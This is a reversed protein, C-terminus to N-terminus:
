RECECLEPMYAPSVMSGINKSATCPYLSDFGERGRYTELATSIVADPYADFVKAMVDRHAHWCAWPGRRGTWSRRACPADSSTAVIRGTFGYEKGIPKANRHVRLTGGYELSVDNVISVIDGYTFAQGKGKTIRM